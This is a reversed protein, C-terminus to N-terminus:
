GVPGPVLRPVLRVLVVMAVLEILTQLVVVSAAAPALPGPLALALPLVVLSNRTVGSFVVARRGRTDLGLGRATVVGFITMAVAFLAYIGAVTGLGTPWGDLRPLQSAVVTFLVAMMLPVMAVTAGSEARRGARTRRAWWQTAWALLLPLVILVAFAELFPRVQVVATLERGLFAWLYLPLLAMQVVLLVPTAALLRREDGGALGTFVIVYDVCPCLLVLLVGLQVGRESPVLAFLAAVVLPVVVFNLVLVAGLFRGGRMARGMAAVPVQLFTVYLLAALFPTILVSLSSFTQPALVGAAAAVAIAGLYCAVQHRELSAAAAAASPRSAPM